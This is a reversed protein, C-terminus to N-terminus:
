ADVLWDDDLQRQEADRRREVEAEQYLLDKLLQAPLVKTLGLDTADGEDWAGVLTGLLAVTSQDGGAHPRAFVPSGDLGASSRLETLYIRMRLEPGGVEFRVLMPESPIMAINGTRLVPANQEQAYRVGTLSIAVVEDGIGIGVDDLNGVLREDFIMSLPMPTYGADASAQPNWRVAALDVYHEGAAPDTLRLWRDSPPLLDIITGGGPANLRAVLTERDRVSHGATVLYVHVKGAVLTAPVSM